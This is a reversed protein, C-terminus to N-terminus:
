PCCILSTRSRFRVKGSRRVKGPLPTFYINRKGAISTTIYRELSARGIESCVYEFSYCWQNSNKNVSEKTWVGVFETPKVGVATWYAILFDTATKM